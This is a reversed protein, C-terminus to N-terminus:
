EIIQISFKVFPSSIIRIYKGFLLPKLSLTKMLLPNATGEDLYIAKVDGAQIM